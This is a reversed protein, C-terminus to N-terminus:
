LKTNNYHVKTWICDTFLYKIFLYYINVNCYILFNHWYVCIDCQKYLIKGVYLRETDGLILLQGCLTNVCSSAAHGSDRSVLNM